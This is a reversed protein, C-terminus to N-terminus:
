KEKLGICIKLEMLILSEKCSLVDYKIASNFFNLAILVPTLFLGAERTKISSINLPVLESSLYKPDACNTFSISVRFQIVKNAVWSKFNLSKSISYGLM